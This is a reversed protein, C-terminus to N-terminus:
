LRDNITKIGEKVIFAKGKTYKYGAIDRIFTKLSKGDGANEFLKILEKPYVREGQEGGNKKKRFAGEAQIVNDTFVRMSKYSTGNNEFPRNVGGSNILNIERGRLFLSDWTSKYMYGFKLM